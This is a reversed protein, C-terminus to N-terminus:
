FRMTFNKWSVLDEIVENKNECFQEIAELNKKSLSFFVAKKTNQSFFRDGSFTGIGVVTELPKTDILAEKLRVDFLKFEKIDEWRITLHRNHIGESDICTMGFANRHWFVVFLIPLVFMVAGVYFRDFLAWVIFLGFPLVQILSHLVTQLSAFCRYPKKM